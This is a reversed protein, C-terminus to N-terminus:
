LSLTLAGTFDLYAIVPLLLVSLVASIQAMRGWFKSRCNGACRYTAVAVYLDILLGGVTYLHMVVSNGPNLFLEIAGYLVSGGVGYLWFVKALSTKGQLPETLFAEFSM